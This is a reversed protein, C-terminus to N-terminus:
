HGCCACRSVPIHFRRVWTRRVMEEQNQEEMRELTLPGGCGPCKEPAAVTIEEDGHDPIPRSHQQGYKAGPKRGPAKANKKRKGRSFPAAQRRAARQAAELEKRLKDIEERLRQTEHELRAKERQAQDRERQAQDREERM